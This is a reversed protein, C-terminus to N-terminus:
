AYLWKEYAYITVSGENRTFGNEYAYPTKWLRLRLIPTKKTTFRLTVGGMVVWRYRRDYFDCFRHVLLEPITSIELNNEM